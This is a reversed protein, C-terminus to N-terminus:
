AEEGSSLERVRTVASQIRIVGKLCRGFGLNTMIPSQISITLVGDNEHREIHKRHTGGDAICGSARLVPTM